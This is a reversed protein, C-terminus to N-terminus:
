YRSHWLRLSVSARRRRQPVNCPPGSMLTDRGFCQLRCSSLGLCSAVHRAKDANLLNLNLDSKPRRVLKLVALSSQHHVKTGQRSLAVLRPPIAVLLLASPIMSLFYQEFLLTLDFRGSCPGAAPGFASECGDMGPSLSAIRSIIDRPQSRVAIAVFAGAPFFKCCVERWYNRAPAVRSEIKTQGDATPQDIQGPGEREPQGSNQLRHIADAAVALRCRQHPAPASKSHWTTPQGATCSQTLCPMQSFSVSRSYMCDAM